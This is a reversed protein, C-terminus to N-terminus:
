YYKKQHGANWPHPLAKKSPDELWYTGPRSVKIVKYPGEWTSSLKGASPEKTSLTVKRLVLDGPLFSRRKVRRNYYKAVQCKYAAQRLEAMERKEDLLDLNLRLEIENSEKDFNSTRYQIRRAQLKDRPLTGEQLYAIIEDMWTPNEGVQLVLNGAEISPSALFELPICRDEHGFHLVAQGDKSRGKVQRNRNLHPVEAEPSLDVHDGQNRGSNTM